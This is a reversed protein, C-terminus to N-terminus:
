EQARSTGDAQEMAAAAALLQSIRDSCVAAPAVPAAPAAAKQQQQQQQQAKQHLAQQQQLAAQRQLQQLAQQQLLVAQVQLQQQEAQKRMRFM